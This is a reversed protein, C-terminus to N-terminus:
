LNPLQDQTLRIAPGGVEQTERFGCDCDSQVDKLYACDFLHFAYREYWGQLTRLQTELSMADRTVVALLHRTDALSFAAAFKDVDDKNTEEKALGSLLQRRREPDMSIDTTSKTM